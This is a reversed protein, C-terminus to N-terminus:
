QILVNLTKGNIKLWSEAEKYKPYISNVIQWFRKSHNMELLHAVEHAIVYDIIWTPAFVLQTNFKLRGRNDCSGWRRKFQKVTISEVNVGLLDSFCHSKENCYQLLAQEFFASLLKLQKQAQQKVRRSTHVKIANETSIITTKAANPIFLLDLEKGLFSITKMSLISTPAAELQQKELHKLVWQRKNHVWQNIFAEEVYFPAYVIVERNSIKIALTKRRRSRKLQYQIAM